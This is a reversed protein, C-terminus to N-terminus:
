EGVSEWAEVDEVSPPTYDRWWQDGEHAALVADARDFWENLKSNDRTPLPSPSAGAM